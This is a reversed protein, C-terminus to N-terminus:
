LFNMMFGGLLLEFIEDDVQYCWLHIYVETGISTMGMAFVRHKTICYKCKKQILIQIQLVINVNKESVMKLITICKKYKKNLIGRFEFSRIIGFFLDGFIM